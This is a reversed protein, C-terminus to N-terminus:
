LHDCYIYLHKLLVTKFQDCCFNYAFHIGVHLNYGKPTSLLVTEVLRNKQAAVAHKALPWSVNVNKREFYTKLARQSPEKSCLM